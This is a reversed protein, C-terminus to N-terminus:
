EDVAIFPRVTGYIGEGLSGMNELMNNLVM